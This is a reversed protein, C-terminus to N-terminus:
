TVSKKKKKLNKSVGKKLYGFLCVYMLQDLVLSHLGSAISGGELHVATSRRSVPIVGTVQSVWKSSLCILCVSVYVYRIWSWLYVLSIWSRTYQGTYHHRLGLPEFQPDKPKQRGHVYFCFADVIKTRRAANKHMNIMMSLGCYICTVYAGSSRRTNQNRSFGSSGWNSGWAPIFIACTRPDGKYIQTWSWLVYGPQM